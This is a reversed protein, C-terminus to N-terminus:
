VTNFMNGLPKGLLKWVMAVVGAKEQLLVTHIPRHLRQPGDQLVDFGLADYIELQTPVLNCSRRIDLLTFGRVMEIHHWLVAVWENPPGLGNLGLIQFPGVNRAM